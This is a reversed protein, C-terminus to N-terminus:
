GTTLFKNFYVNHIKIKGTNGYKLNYDCYSYKKFIYYILIHYSHILICNYSDSIFLDIIKEWFNKYKLDTDNVKYFSNFEFAYPPDFYFLTNTKDYQSFDVNNFDECIFECSKFMECFAMKNKYYIRSIPSSKINTLVCFKLNHDTINENIWKLTEKIKIQSKDKGANFLSFITSCAENYKILFEDIDNNKLFNYFDILDKNTDYIIYKKDKYNKVSWLFRSFGFSGGFSEVIVKYNSVDVNDLYKSERFKSGNYNLIFQNNM